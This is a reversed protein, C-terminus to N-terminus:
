DGRAERYALERQYETLKLPDGNERTAEFYSDEGNMCLIFTVCETHEGGDPDDLILDLDFQM